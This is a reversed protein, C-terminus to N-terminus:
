DVGGCYGQQTRVLGCWWLVRTTNASIWVVVIGKNNPAAKRSRPTASVQAFILAIGTVRPSTTSSMSKSYYYLLSNTFRAEAM